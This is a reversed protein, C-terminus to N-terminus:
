KVRSNELVGMHIIENIGAHTGVLKFVPFTMPEPLPRGSFDNRPLAEGHVVIKMNADIFHENCHYPLVVESSSDPFVNEFKWGKCPERTLMVYGALDGWGLTACFSVM